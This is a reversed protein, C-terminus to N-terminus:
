TLHAALFKLQTAVHFAGGGEHANFRYVEMTKPGAYHHHAAFVTSPPCITDLLGVSILAPATARAAFNVGDFYSLTQLVLDDHDRHVRLYNEIELYPGESAIELARGYHCLFPVDALAAALDPVLGAVMLTLGGGQSVGAVAVRSAEVLPHARAAEVARVADSVVRRYYYTRPHLVGRTVFGPHQANGGDPERDPTEGPRWGSGQGRIDLFLHGYGAAAYLLVEHPLGRGGGYGPFEVVCPVPEIVAAPLVLWAKIRDGAYGAFTVDYTDVLTLGSEVKTFEAALPSSRVEDLTGAWFEDFDDPEVRDPRYERLDGLSWEVLPM